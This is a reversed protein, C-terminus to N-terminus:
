SIQTFLRPKLTKVAGVVGTQLTNTKHAIDISFEPITANRMYNGSKGDPGLSAYDSQFNVIASLAWHRPTYNFRIQDSRNFGWFPAGTNLALVNPMCSASFPHWTRGILLSSKNWALNIYAHRLRIGNTNSTGTFDVEIYASSKARFVEPAFVRMSLRSSITSLNSKPTANIDQGNEDLLPKAPYFLFLGEVAEGGQRTDYLYDGRVFGSLQLGFARSLQITDNRSFANTLWVCQIAILLIAPRLHKM